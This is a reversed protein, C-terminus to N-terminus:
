SPGRITCRAPTANSSVSVILYAKTRYPGYVESMRVFVQSASSARAVAYAARRGPYEHAQGTLFGYAQEEVQPHPRDWGIFLVATAM